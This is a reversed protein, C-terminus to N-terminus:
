SLVNYLRGAERATEKTPEQKQEPTAHSKMQIVAYLCGGAAVAAMGAAM